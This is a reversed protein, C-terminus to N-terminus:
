VLELINIKATGDKYSDGKPRGNANVAVCTGVALTKGDSHLSLGRGNPLNNSIFFPKPEGIRWFWLQGQGPMACCTAMVFGSPHLAVDYAFGQTKDGHQLEHTVTGSEWDVVVVLPAGEAFGGGPNKMGGCILQKGTPDFILNRIGGCDQIRDLRYFTPVELQRTLKQNPIDWHRISGKLDGTALSKGDPHFALSHVDTEHGGLAGLQKGDTVSYLKVSPDLGAVAVTAGDSSASMTRIWGDLAHELNWIQQPEDSAYKWAILRGWSDSTLLTEGAFAIRQTWGFHGTLPPLLKPETTVDWRHILADYGAAFLYKGCPSYRVTWAQRSHELTKILKATLDAM